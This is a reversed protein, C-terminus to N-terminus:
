VFCHTKVSFYDCFYHTRRKVAVGVPLARVASPGFFFFLIFLFFYCSINTDSAVPLACVGSLGLYWFYHDVTLQEAPASVESPGFGVVPSAYM